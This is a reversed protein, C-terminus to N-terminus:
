QYERLMKKVEERCRKLWYKYGLDEALYEKYYKYRKLFPYDAEDSLLLLRQISAWSSSFTRHYNAFNELIIKDTECFILDKCNEQFQERLPHEILAVNRKFENVAQNCFVTGRETLGRIAVVSYSGSSAEKKDGIHVIDFGCIRWFYALEKTYGFSVSLFDIQQELDKVLQAILSKGIGQNQYCPQVAIRSIRRSTLQCAELLNTQQTLVQAVLNGKPRRIGRQIDLILDVDQMNGEELSWICGILQNEIYALQFHQKPADFLRRLDLPSTRYHALTLLGYLQEIQKSEVLIQQKINKIEVKSEVASQLFINDSIQNEAELLLLTDIFQELLDNEQWRLPEVLEFHQLTRNIKPIFKLLFGRGTGEYSQITTTCLVGKFYQILKQLLALPLMAAEDIVLFKHKFIEPNETVQELLLDPAIFDLPRSSFEQLIKVASKNPATVIVEDIQEALLGALASKGRGRKATVVYIDADFKLIENIIKQQSATALKKNKPLKKETQLSLPIALDASQFYVPFHFQQIKQQFFQRFYPTAIAQTKGSWRLSDLDKQDSFDQWSNVIIVLLGGSKLTGSAIALADLNLSYRADYIICDLEQGLKNKAKNFPIFSVFENQYLLPTNEQYFVVASQIIIQQPQKDFFRDLQTKLWNDNGVLLSLQRTQM